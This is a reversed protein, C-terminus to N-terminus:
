KTYYQLPVFEFAAFQNVEPYETIVIPLIKTVPLYGLPLKKRNSITWTACWADADGCLSEGLKFCFMSQDDRITKIFKANDAPVDGGEKMDSIKGALERLWAEDHMHKEDMAFCFVAAYSEDEGPEYLAYHAQVVSGYIIPADALAKGKKSSLKNFSIVDKVFDSEPDRPTAFYPELKGMDLANLSNQKIEALRAEEAAEREAFRKRYETMDCGQKEMDEIQELTLNEEWSNQQSKFMGAMLRGLSEMFGM